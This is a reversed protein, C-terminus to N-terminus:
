ARANRPYKITGDGNMWCDDETNGFAIGIENAFWQGLGEADDMLESSTRIMAALKKVSVQVGDLAMNSETISAGEAYWGATVGGTRRPRVVTDRTIYRVDVARRAAGYAEIM